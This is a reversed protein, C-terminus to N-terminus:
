GATPAALRAWLWVLAVAVLYYIALDALFAAWFFQGGGAPPPASSARAFPFPLGFRVSGTLLASSLYSIALALVTVLAFV